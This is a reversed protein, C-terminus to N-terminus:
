DIFGKELLYKYTGFDDVHYAIDDAIEKLTEEANAMAVGLGVEELMERDNGSDGFAIVQELSINLKQALIDLSKAKNVGKTAVFVGGEWNAQVSLNLNNYNFLNEYYKKTLPIEKSIITILFNSKDESNFYEEIDFFDKKFPKYFWHDINFYKNYYGKNKGVISFAIELDKTNEYFVKFDDFSIQQEFIYENKQVDLIFSGNGGIFYDVYPTDLKNGITFIDRATSFAIVFGKEKLKKFMKKITNSLPLNKEGDKFPLITGDIDFAILKYKKNM